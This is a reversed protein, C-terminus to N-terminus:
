KRQVAGSSKTQTPPSFFVKKFAEIIAPSFGPYIMEEMCLQINTGPNEQAKKILRVFEDAIGIIEAIRNIAGTGLRAPFGRKNRREHHQAVAQLSAADVGPIAKLIQVSLNPHTRYLSRQEETMKTEDEHHVEPPLRNLGIDHFLAAMGIAQLPREAEIKLVPLLLAAIISTAVGHEYAAVDAMFGKLLENKGPELAQVLKQTNAVFNEAYQLHTESLGNNRLFTMAEQGHNLTHALKLENSVGAKSLLTSAIKDCYALYQEQAEKRLFFHVVGRELYKTVREPAFADGAQLIKIFKADGLRVYVDFFSKTGSLFDDARIPVFQSDEASVEAELADTNKKSTELADSADFVFAAPAVLKIMDAYAFPEELKGHVGMEEFDKDALPTEKSQIIYIPTAPRMQHAFRVVSIGPPSALDLKVFIAAFSRNKDALLLQAEKGTKAAALPMQQAKPDAALTQLLEGNPTAVLLNRKPRM